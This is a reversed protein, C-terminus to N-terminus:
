LRKMIFEAMEKIGAVASLLSDPKDACGGTYFIHDHWMRPYVSSEYYRPNGADRVKKAFAVTDDLMLEADGVILLSEPLLKLWQAPSWYPSAIPNKWDHTDGVYAKGTWQSDILDQTVNGSSFIPDGTMTAEVWVRSSYSPLSCTLDTYTSFQVSATAHPINRYEEALPEEGDITGSIQALQLSLALGGGASDGVVFVNRARSAGYPGNEWIFKMGMVADHVGGPFIYEPILRYDIALVPLGTAAAIRTTLPRYFDAPSYSSYGGGHLFLIRDREAKRPMRKPIIWEATGRAEGNREWASSVKVGELVHITTGEALSKDIGTEGYDMSQRFTEICVDVQDTLSSNQAALSAAFLILTNM